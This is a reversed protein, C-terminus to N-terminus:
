PTTYNRIYQKIHLMPRTEPRTLSSEQASSFEDQCIVMQMDQSLCLKCSYNAVPRSRTSRRQGSEAAHNNGPLPITCCLQHNSNSDLPLVRTLSNCANQQHSSLMPRARSSTHMDWIACMSWCLFCFHLCIYAYMYVNLSAQLWITLSISQRPTWAEWGVTRATGSWLEQCLKTQSWPQQRESLSKPLSTAAHPSQVPSRLVNLQLIM